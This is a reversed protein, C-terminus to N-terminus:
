QRAPIVISQGNLFGEIRLSKDNRLLLSVMGTEGQHFLSAGRLAVEDRWLDTIRETEPFDAHTAIVATADTRDLLDVIPTPHLSHRGVIIVDCRLDPHAHVLAAVDVASADNLLLLRFGHFHMLYIVMRNDAIEHPDTLSSTQLIEWEVGQSQPLRIGQQACFFPIAHASASRQLARFSTSRAESVPAIIQRIPLQQLAISAGGIHAAEPHSLLLMDPESGFYRLSPLVASRFARENGCDFLADAQHSQVVM